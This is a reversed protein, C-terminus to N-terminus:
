ECQHPELATLMGCGPCHSYEVEADEEWADACECCQRWTDDIREARGAGSSPVEAGLFARKGLWDLRERYYLRAATIRLGDISMKIETRGLHLLRPRVTGSAGFHEGPDSVELNAIDEFALEIARFKWGAQLLFRGDFRHSAVMGGDPEVDGRNVVFFEKTMSDHFGDVADLLEEMESQTTVQTYGRM